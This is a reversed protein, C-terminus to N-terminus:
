HTWRFGWFDAGINFELIDFLHLRVSWSSRGVESRVAAAQPQASLDRDQARTLQTIKVLDAPDPVHEFNPDNRRLSAGHVAVQDERFEDWM